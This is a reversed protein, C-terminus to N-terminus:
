HYNIFREEEYVSQREMADKLDAVKQGAWDRLKLSPHALLDEFVKIRQHYYPIASGRWSFLNTKEELIALFDDRDGYRSMMAAAFPHWEYEHKGVKVLLPMMRALVIAGQEEHQESWDLLDGFPPDFLPDERRGGVEEDSTDYYKYRGYGLVDSLDSNGEESERLLAGGLIPWTVERYERLLYPLIAKVADRVTYNTQGSTSAADIEDAIVRALESDRGPEEEKLLREIVKAWDHTRMQSTARPDSLIGRFSVVERLKSKYIEWHEPHSVLQMYYVDLAAWAGEVGYGLLEDCFAIIQKPELRSLRGFFAFNRLFLVQVHGEKALRLARRLDEEQLEMGFMLSVTYVRLKKDAAFSELTERVLEPDKAYVAAVFGRFMSLDAQGPPLVSLAARMVAFFIRPQDIVEGVRYGFEYGYDQRGLLLYALNDAWVEPNSVFEEALSVTSQEGHDIDEDADPQPIENRSGETVYIRIRDRMLCPELLKSLESLIERHEDGHKPDLAGIALAVPKRAEWFHGNSEVVARVAEDVEKILPTRVLEGIRRAIQQRALSALSDDDPGTAFTTLIRLAVRWYDFVEGWTSPHYDRLRARSGQIEVSAPRGFNNTELAQGLAEILIKKHETLSSRLEAELVKLRATLPAQTGPMFVHFLRTYDGDMSVVRPYYGSTIRAASFALLLNSAVPFTDAWFCLKDLAQTLSYRKEGIELVQERAGSGFVRVLANVTHEHDM